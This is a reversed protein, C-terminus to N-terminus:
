PGRPAALALGPPVCLAHREAATTTIVDIGGDYSGDSVGRRPEASGVFLLGAPSM